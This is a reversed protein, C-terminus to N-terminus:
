AEAMPPLMGAAQEQTQPVEMDLFRALGAATPAASQAPCAFAFLELLDLVQIAPNGLRKLTAPGHIVLPVEHNLAKAVTGPQVSVFAGDLSLLTAKGHGAILVCKDPLYPM